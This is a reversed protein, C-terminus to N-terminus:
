CTAKACRRVNDIKAGLAARGVAGSVVEDGIVYSPTGNIRLAASLRTDADIAAQIDPLAMAKRIDAEGVGFGEAVAIASDEDAVGRSGLLKEHFEGYRAPQIHRFALSVRSAAVSQEGLVPIEKLVVRLKPDGAILAKTDPLARKCYGCNYDFFEVLTVDGEPNGLATGPPTENLQDAVGAIAQSQSKSEEAARKTELADMAELLVEPNELLYERVVKKIETKEADDMAFAAPAAWQTCFLAVLAAARISRTQM